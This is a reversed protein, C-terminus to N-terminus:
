AAIVRPSRGTPARGRGGQWAAYARGVLFFTAGLVGVLFGIPWNTAHSVAIATWVTALAFCVALVVAVFPNTTFSRAAAPPGVMLSFMLLAGVVPVSMTTVVAVILLFLLEIRYTRVGRAEALEPMVSTLLLLRWCLAAAVLALM